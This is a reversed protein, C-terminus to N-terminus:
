YQLKIYFKNGSTLYVLLPWPVVSLSELRIVNVINLRNCLKSVLHFFSLYVSRSGQRTRFFIEKHQSIPFPNFFIFTDTTLNSVTYHIIHCVHTYTLLVKSTSFCGVKFLFVTFSRTAMFTETGLTFHWPCNGCVEFQPSISNLYHANGM